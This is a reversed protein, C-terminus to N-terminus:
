NKFIFNFLKDAFKNKILNVGGMIRWENYKKEMYDEYSVGIKSSIMRDFRKTVETVFKLKNYNYTGKSFYEVYDDTNIKTKINKKHITATTNHLLITSLPSAYRNNCFQFIYFAASYAKVAYGNFTINKTLKMKGMKAVFQITPLLEGGNSDIIINIINDSVNIKNTYYPELLDVIDHTILGNIYIVNNSNIYLYTNNPTNDIQIRNQKNGMYTNNQKYIIINNYRKAIIINNHYRKAIIINNKLNNIFICFYKYYIIIFLLRYINIHLVKCFDM